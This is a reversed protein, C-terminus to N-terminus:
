PPNTATIITQRSPVCLPNHCYMQSLIAGTRALRDLNPTKITRDGAYGAVNPNHQDSMIFIINPPKSASEGQAAFAPISEASTILGAGATAALYKRRTM